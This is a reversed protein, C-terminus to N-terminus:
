DAVKVKAEKTTKRRKSKKAETNDHRKTECGRESERCGEVGAM